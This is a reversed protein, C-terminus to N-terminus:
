GKKQRERSCVYACGIHAAYDLALGCSLILITSSVIEITLGMFYAYGCVNSVSFVVSLLVFICVRVNAILIFTTAIITLFTLILNRILERSMTKNAEWQVYMFSYAIPTTFKEGEFTIKALIDDRIEDMAKNQVTTNELRGHQFNLRSATIEFKGNWLDWKSTTELSVNFKLDIFYNRNEDLFVLFHRKFTLEPNLPIFIVIKTISTGIPDLSGDWESM